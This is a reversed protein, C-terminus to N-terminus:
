LGEIYELSDALTKEEFRTEVFTPLFLSKTDKRKKDEIVSEFQVTIIDKIHSEWYLIDRENVTFGSGVNCVIKGDESEVTLSGMKTLLRGEGENVGVIRFEADAFHKMKVMDPATNNKWLSSLDKLIAGEEGADRMRQYFDQAEKLTSVEESEIPSVHSSSGKEFEIKFAEVLADWRDGYPVDSKSRLYDESSLVDWVNFTVCQAQEVTGTGKIFKNLIGNGKKRLMPQGNEMLVLEGAFVPDPFIHKLRDFYIRLEKELEGFLDFQKGRRTNFLLPFTESAWVFMGDSKKQIVGFPELSVRNLNKPGSCRQYPTEFIMGPCVKNVSRVSFGAETKGKLIREVVKRTSGNGVLSALHKKDADSAGRQKALAELFDFIVLCDGATPSSNSEPLKKIHFTKGETMMLTIVRKFIPNNLYSKLLERKDNKGPLKAINELKLYSDHLIPM